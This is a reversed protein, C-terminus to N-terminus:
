GFLPEGLAALLATYDEFMPGIGTSGHGSLAKGLTFVGASVLTFQFPHFKYLFEFCFSVFM